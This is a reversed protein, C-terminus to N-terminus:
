THSSNLRTSKRDQNNKFETSQKDVVDAVYKDRTKNLRAAFVPDLPEM